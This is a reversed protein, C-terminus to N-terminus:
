ATRDVWNKWADYGQFAYPNPEDRTFTSTEKMGDRFTVTMRFEHEDPHAEFWALAHLVAEHEALRRTSANPIFDDLSIM